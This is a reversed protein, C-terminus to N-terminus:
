GHEAGQPRNVSRAIIGAIVPDQQRPAFRVACGYTRALDLLVRSSLGGQGREASSITARTVGVRRAAETQSLEASRRADRLALGLGEPTLVDQEGRM